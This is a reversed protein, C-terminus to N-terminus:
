FYLQSLAWNSVSVSTASILNTTPQICKPVGRREAYVYLREDMIKFVQKLGTGKKSLNELKNLPSAETFEENDEPEREKVPHVSVRHPPNFEWLSVLGVWVGVLFCM